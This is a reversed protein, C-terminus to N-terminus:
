ETMRDLHPLRRWRSRNARLTLASARAKDRGLAIQVIEEPVVGAVAGVADAVTERAAPVMVAMAYKVEATRAHVTVARRAVRAVGAMEGVMEDAMLVHATGHAVSKLSTM